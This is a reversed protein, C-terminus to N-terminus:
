AATRIRGAGGFSGRIELPRNNADELQEESSVLGASMKLKVNDLESAGAGIREATIQERAIVRRIATRPIIQNATM